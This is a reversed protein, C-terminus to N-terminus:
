CLIGSLLDKVGVHVVHITEQLADGLKFHVRIALHSIQPSDLIHSELRQSDLKIDLFVNRTKKVNEFDAFIYGHGLNQGDKAVQLNLRWIQSM